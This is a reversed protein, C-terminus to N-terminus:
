QKSGHLKSPTWLSPLERFDKLRKAQPHPEPVYPTFPKHKRPMAKKFKNADIM